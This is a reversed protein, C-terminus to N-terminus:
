CGAKFAKLQVSVCQHETEIKSWPAVTITAQCARGSLTKSHHHTPSPFPTHKGPCTCALPQWYQCLLRGTRIHGGCSEIARNEEGRGGQARRVERRGTTHKGGSLTAILCWVSSSPAFRASSSNTEEKAFEIACSRPSPCRTNNGRSVGQCYTPPLLNARSM